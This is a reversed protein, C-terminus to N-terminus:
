ITISTIFNIQYNLVAQAGPSPPIMNFGIWKFLSAVNRPNVGLAQPKWHVLQITKEMIAEATKGTGTPSQNVMPNETVIVAFNIGAMVRDSETEPKGKPMIVIVGVGARTLSAAVISAVNGKRYTLALIKKTPDPDNFYVDANLLDAIRQQCNAIKSM